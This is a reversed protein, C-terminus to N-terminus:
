ANINRILEFIEEPTAAEYDNVADSIIGNDTDTVRWGVLISLVGANNACKMDFVGDGIMVAEDPLSGM